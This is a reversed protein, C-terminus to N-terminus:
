LRMSPIIYAVGPLGGGFPKFILDPWLSAQITRTRSAAQAPLAHPGLRTKNKGFSNMDLYTEVYVLTFWEFWATCTWHTGSASHLIWEAVGFCHLCEHQDFQNTWEHVSSRGFMWLHADRWASGLFCQKRWKTCVCTNQKKVPWPSSLM